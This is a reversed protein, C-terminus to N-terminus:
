TEFANRINNTFIGKETINDDSMIAEITDLGLLGTDAMFNVMLSRILVFPISKQRLMGDCCFIVIYLRSQMRLLANRVHRLRDPRPGPHRPGGLIGAHAALRQSGEARRLATPIAAEGDGSYGHLKSLVKNRGWGHGNQQPESREGLAM